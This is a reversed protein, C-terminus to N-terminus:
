TRDLRSAAAIILLEESKSKRFEGDIEVHQSLIDALSQLPKAAAIIL